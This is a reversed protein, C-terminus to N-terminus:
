FVTLIGGNSWIQGTVLGTTSTPLSNGFEASLLWEVTPIAQGNSTERATILAPTAQPLTATGDLYVEFANARHTDDAGIGIEFVSLLEATNYRGLATSYDKDAITWMGQAFSHEGTSTSYRGMSISHQNTAYAKRGIATAYNNTAESMSGMAISNYGTALSAYGSAFSWSTTAQGNHSLNVANTGLIDSSLGAIRYGLGDKVLEGGLSDVYEKTVLSKNDIILATELKPALVSGNKYVEFANLRATNETGIGITLVTGDGSGTEVVSNNFVGLATEGTNEAKTWLGSSLSYTGNAESSNGFSLAYDKTSKTTNGFALSYEGSSITTAGIAVSYVESATNDKGFALTCYNTATSASGVAFSGWGTAESNLGIATSYYNSATSKGFATSYYGSAISSGFATSYYGSATSTGFSTAYKSEAVSVGFATSHEGSATSAGFATAYNSSATSGYGFATAYDGTAFTENGFANSFDGTATGGNSLNVASAGLVDDSLGNIRYGLGDKVLEGGGGGGGANATVWGKTVLTDDTAGDILADTLSPASVVGSKYVELANSTNARSYLRVKPAFTRTGTRKYNAWANPVFYITITRTGSYNDLVFPTRLDQAYFEKNGSKTVGVYTTWGGSDGLGVIVISDGAVYTAPLDMTIRDNTTTDVGWWSYDDLKTALISYDVTFNNVGITISSSTTAWNGGTTTLVTDVFTHTGTVGNGVELLSDVKNDNYLGLVTRDTGINVNHHGFSTLNDGVSTSYDGIIASSKGKVYSSNGIAMSSWTDVGMINFEGLALSSTSNLGNYRGGVINYSGRNTNRDGVTLGGWNDGDENNWGGTVSGYGGVTGYGFTASHYQTSRINGGHTICNTGAWTNFGGASSQQGITKNKRGEVHSYNGLAVNQTGEAHTQYGRAFNLYGEVHSVLGNQTEYVNTVKTWNALIGVGDSTEANDNTWPYALTVGSVTVEKTSTNISTVTGGGSWNFRKYTTNQYNAYNLEDDVAFGAVSKLVYTSPSSTRIINAYNNKHDVFTVAGEAHSQGDGAHTGSGEAHSIFGKSRGFMGEVHSRGGTAYSWEGQAHSCYGTAYTNRGEAYSVSGSASTYNGIAFSYTGSATSNKGMATSYAETANTNYGTTFSNYGSAGYAPNSNYSLSVSKAGLTVTSLGDIRYGLGDKVLEGGGGGANAQVWEVTAIAKAGRNTISNTTSAPLTATNDDYVVFANVTSNTGAGNGIELVSTTYGKNYNGIAIGNVANTVSGTGIAVSSNAKTWSGYGIAVSYEASTDTRSAEGLTISNNAIASSRQGIAVSRSGQATTAYGLSTSYNGTAYAYSGLVSSYNGSAETVYGLATSYRGSAGAGKGLTGAISLDVADLGIDDYSANDQGVLRWGYNTGDTTLRELGTGGANKWEVGDVSANTTLVQGSTGFGLDDQKTGIATTNTGIDTTNTVVRADLASTVTADTKEVLANVLDVQDTIDGFISGWYSKFTGTNYGSFLDKVKINYTKGKHVIPLIDNSNDIQASTLNSLESIRIDLKTAM